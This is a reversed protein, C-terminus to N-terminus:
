PVEISVFLKVRLSLITITPWIIQGWFFHISVEPGSDTKSVAGAFHAIFREEAVNEEGVRGRLFLFCSLYLWTVSLINCVGTQKWNGLM